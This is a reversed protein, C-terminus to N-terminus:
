NQKGNENQNENEIENEIENERPGLVAMLIQFDIKHQFTPKSLTAM